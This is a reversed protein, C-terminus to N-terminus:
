QTGLIPLTELSEWVANCRELTGISGISDFYRIMTISGKISAKLPVRFWRFVRM